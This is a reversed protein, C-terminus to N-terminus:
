ITATNDDFATEDSVTSIYSDSLLRRQNFRWQGIFAYDQVDVVQVMGGIISHDSYTTSILAQLNDIDQEVLSREDADMHPNNALIAAKLENKDAFGNFLFRQFKSRSEKETKTIPLMMRVVLFFTTM